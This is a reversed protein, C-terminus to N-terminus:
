GNCTAEDEDEEERTLVDYYSFFPCSNVFAENLAHIRDELLVKLPKMARLCFKHICLPRTRGRTPIWLTIMGPGNASSEPRKSVLSFLKNDIEIQVLYM